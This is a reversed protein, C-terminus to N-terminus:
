KTLKVERVECDAGGEIQLDDRWRPRHFSQRPHQSSQNHHQHSHSNSIEDNHNQYKNALLAENGIKVKGYCTM